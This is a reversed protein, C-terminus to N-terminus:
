NQLETKIPSHAQVTVGIVGPDTKGGLPWVLAEFAATSLDLRRGKAVMAASPGTGAVRVLITREGHTVELLTGIPFDNSACVWEPSDFHSAKTQILTTISLHSPSLIPALSPKEAAYRILSICPGVIFFGIVWGGFLASALFIIVRKM